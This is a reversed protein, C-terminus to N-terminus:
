TWICTVSVTYSVLMAAFINSKRLGLRVLVSDGSWGMASFIAVVEALMENNEDSLFSALLYAYAQIM